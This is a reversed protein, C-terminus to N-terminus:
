MGEPKVNEELRMDKQLNKDNQSQLCEEYDLRQRKIFAQRSPGADFLRRKRDEQCDFKTPVAEDSLLIKKSFGLKYKIYNTTYKEMQLVFHVCSYLYCQKRGYFSPFATSRSFLKTM